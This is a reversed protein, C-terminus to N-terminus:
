KQRGEPYKFSTILILSQNGQIHNGLTVIMAAVVVVAAAVVM